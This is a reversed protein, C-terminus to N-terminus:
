LKGQKGYRQAENGQRVLGRKIGYERRWIMRFPPLPQLQSKFYDKLLVALVSRSSSSNSNQQTMPLTEKACWGKSAAGQASGSAAFGLRTKCLGLYTQTTCSQAQFSFASSGEWARVQLATCSKPLNAPPLTAAAATVACWREAKNWKRSGLRKLNCGLLFPFHLM